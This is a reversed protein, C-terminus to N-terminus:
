LVAVSYNETMTSLVPEEAASSQFIQVRMLSLVHFKPHRVTCSFAGQWGCTQALEQRLGLHRREPPPTPLPSVVAPNNAMARTIKVSLDFLSACRMKFFGHLYESMILRESIPIFCPSIDGLKQALNICDVFLLAWYFTISLNVQYQCLKRKM